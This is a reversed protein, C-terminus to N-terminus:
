NLPSFEKIATNQVYEVNGPGELAEQNGPGPAQLNKVGTVGEGIPWWPQKSSVLFLWFNNFVHTQKAIKLEM